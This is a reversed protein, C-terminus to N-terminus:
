RSRRRTGNTLMMTCLQADSFDADVGHIVGNCTNDLTALYAEAHYTGERLRIQQFVTYACANKRVPTSVVLINQATNPCVIDKGVEAQALAAAMALAQALRITSVKRVDLGGRPKVIILIHDRTMKPPRSANVPQKMASQPTATRRGGKGGDHKETSATSKPIEPRAKKRRGVATTWGPCYAEEPDIEVGEVMQVEPM